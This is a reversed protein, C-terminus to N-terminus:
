GPFDFVEDLFGFLCIGDCCGLWILSALEIPKANCGRPPKQSLTGQSLARASFEEQM